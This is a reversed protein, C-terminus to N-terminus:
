KYKEYSDPIQNNVLFSSNENNNGKYIFVLNHYFHLSIINQDFYTPQYNDIIFESHNIGDALGKFFNMATGQQNLDESDGGFIKWYSTQIDEVVYIGGDKLYPFLTKFSTIIHANIHSGDDIIIDFPGVDKGVESLFIEDTQNGQFIKIRKEQLASKDYIDIGFIKGKRFFKKWMRLSAGGFTKSKNGGVGIELLNINKHKFDKFHYQYHPTYYHKGWKDSGFIIALKTLDNRKSWGVIGYKYKRLANIGSVPLIKKIFEKLQLKM